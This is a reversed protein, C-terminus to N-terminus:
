LHKLHKHQKHHSTQLPIPKDHTPEHTQGKTTNQPQGRTDRQATLIPIKTPFTIGRDWPHVRTSPPSGDLCTTTQEPGGAWVLWHPLDTHSGTRLGLRWPCPVHASVHHTWPTPKTNRSQQKPVTHLLLQAHLEPNRKPHRPYHRQRLIKNWRRRVRCTCRM